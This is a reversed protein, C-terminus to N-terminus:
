KHKGKDDKGHRGSGGGNGGSHGKDDGANHNAADQGHDDNADHTASDQGHDDGADHTASDQGHDDNADHTASDQGHDDAATAAAPAPAPRAAPRPAALLRIERARLSGDAAVVAHVKVTAGLVLRGRVEAGALTVIRGGVTATTAGLASVTGTLEILPRTASIRPLHASDDAGAAAAPQAGLLQGGIGLALTLLATSTQKAIRARRTANIRASM